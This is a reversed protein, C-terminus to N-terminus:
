IPNQNIVNQNLLFFTETVAMNFM